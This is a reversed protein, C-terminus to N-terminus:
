KESIVYGARTLASWKERGPRAAINVSVHRYKGAVGSNTPKYGIVYETRMLNTMQSLMAQLEAVSKPFFARGGTEYALNSLLDVSRQLQNHNLTAGMRDEKSLSIAFLQVDIKRLLKLLDELSYYSAREDGDTILIIARRLPINTFKYQALRQASLYVADLIASQGGEIYLSDLGKNLAIQDSTFDQVTEVKDSSIFRVLLTEDNPGNAKIIAKSTGVALDLITRMSGSTDIALSYVLPVQEKSFASITQPLGDEFVQFDEQGLDNVSSGQSDTAIVSLRTGVGDFVMAMPKYILDYLKDALPPDLTQLIKHQELAAQQSGRELYAAALNYYPISTTPNLRIAEKYSEIAKKHEGLKFYATGMNNHTPAFEPQYRVARKYADIAQKYLSLQFYADGLNYYAESYDQKLKIAQKYANVAEEFKGSRFLELGKTNSAAADNAEQVKGAMGTTSIPFAALLGLCLTVLALELGRSAKTRM